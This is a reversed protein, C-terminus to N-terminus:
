TNFLLDTHTIKLVFLNNVVCMWLHQGLTSAVLSAIHHLPGIWRKGSWLNSMICIVFAILFIPLPSCMGQIWRQTWLCVWVIFWAHCHPELMTIHPPAINLLGLTTHGCWWFTSSGSVPYNSLMLGRVDVAGNCIVHGYLTIFTPCIVLLEKAPLALKVTCMYHLSFHQANCFLTTLLCSVSSIVLFCIYVQADCRWASM